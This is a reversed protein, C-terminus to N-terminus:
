PGSLTMRLYLVSRASSWRVEAARAASESMRIEDNEAGAAASLSFSHLLREWIDRGGKKRERKTALSVSM